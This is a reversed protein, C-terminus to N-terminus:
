GWMRRLRSGFPHKVTLSGFRVNGRVIVHVRGAPPATTARSHATSGLCRLDNIDVTFDDPVVIDTNSCVDDVDVTVVATRVDAQTLDLNVDSFRTKLALHAPVKWNGSRQIHSMTVKIPLAAASSPSPVQGPGAALRVDPLDAVVASLEGRTRAALTADMRDSFEDLTLMGQGVARQLLGVVHERDADGVRLDREDV